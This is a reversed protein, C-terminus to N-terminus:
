KGVLRDRFGQMPISLNLRAQIASEALGDYNSQHRVGFDLTVHKSFFYRVGGSVVRVLEIREGGSLEFGPIWNIEGMIRARADSKWLEIGGVPRWFSAGTPRSGDLQADIYKLGIHGKVKLGSWGARADTAYQEGPYNALTTVTYFEGVKAKYDGESTRETYTGSRRFSVALGRAYGTLPVFVKLGASHVDALKDASDFGSVIDITGIELQAIDGLGLVAGTLPRSGSESLVVGTAAVDLDMSRVVRGTPISFLSTPEVPPDPAVAGREYAHAPLTAMAFTAFAILTRTICTM